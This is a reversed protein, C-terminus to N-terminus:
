PCQLTRVDADISILPRMLSEGVCPVVESVERVLDLVVSHTSTDGSDIRFHLAPAPAIIMIHLQQKLGVATQESDM